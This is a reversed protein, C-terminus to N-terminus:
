IHRLMNVSWWHVQLSASFTLKIMYTKAHECVVLPGSPKCQIALNIMYTKAHECVVLPGSPKCQIALNIMYTKAHECVGTSRFALVCTVPM